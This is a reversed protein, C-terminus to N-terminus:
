MGMDRLLYGGSEQSFLRFLKSGLTTLRLGTSPPSSHARPLHYLVLRPILPAGLPRVGMRCARVLRAQQGRTTCWMRSRTVLPSMVRHILSSVRLDEELLTWIFERSRHIGPTRGFTLNLPQPLHHNTNSSYPHRSPHRLIRASSLHPRPQATACAIPKNNSVKGM